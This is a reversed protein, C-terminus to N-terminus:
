LYWDQSACWNVRVLAVTLAGFSLLWESGDKNSCRRLLAVLLQRILDDGHAM